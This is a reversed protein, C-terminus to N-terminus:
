VPAPAYLYVVTGKEKFVAQKGEALIIGGGTAVVPADQLELNMLTETEKARFYSWDHREVMQAITTKYTSELVLDTDLFRKNLLEALYRGTSTKGTCRYGILFISGM